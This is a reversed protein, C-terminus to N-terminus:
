VQPIKWDFFNLAECLENMNEFKYVKFSEEPWPTMHGDGCYTSVNRIHLHYKDGASKNLWRYLGDPHNFISLLM